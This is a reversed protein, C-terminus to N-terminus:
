IPESPAGSEPVQGSTIYYFPCPVAAPIGSVCPHVADHQLHPHTGSFVLQNKLGGSLCVCGQGARNQKGNQNQSKLKM